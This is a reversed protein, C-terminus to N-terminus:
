AFSNSCASDFELKVEQEVMRLTESDLKRQNCEFKSWTSSSHGFKKAIDQVSLGLILRATKLPFTDFLVNNDANMVPSSRLYDQFANNLTIANPATRTNREWSEITHTSVSLAEAAQTVSLGFEHRIERVSYKEDSNENSNISVVNGMNKERQQEDM